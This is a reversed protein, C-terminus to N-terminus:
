QLGRKQLLPTESPDQGRFKLYQGMPDAFGGESLIYKRFKAALEPNYIDGSEKFAQFADSDLVAAWLYVYYGASYGGDFVHSFYTSRYRPLIEPILGYKDLISKEFANVDVEQPKSQSYYEMDLLCAAINEVTAFGQNFHRSNQLKAILADPMPEGTKYHKAYVKLVEPEGAWNEMIQSPLEVMDNPVSGAIRNYAGRTFFGHLAHGFEHFMTEADDWSLLSPNEGVPKPLNCVVSVLPLTEQGNEISYNRFGTCWAGNSKSPRTYYDLYFIGLSSGDADKMEYTEVDPHYVPIDTRKELTVGYLKNAVHFMGDRVNAMSLYPQIESEELDYKAKRQKEAYYWWDASNLKYGPTVKDAIKQMDALEQKAVNLAPTWVRGLFDFIQQPTKAMNEDVIYEAFTNYGLLQARQMRLNVLQNIVAKNDNENDNNGRMYYGAYLKARLDPRESYQLFPIWSPKNLTFVWKGEMGANKADAAAAAIVNEPLGALDKEDELVMKFNNTEKLLNDGYKLTLTSLEANIKKLKEKDENSLNAGERVLDNYYKELTRMQLSDLGAQDKKDYLAKIREFLKPNMSIEDSHASLMPMMEEAIAQMEDDTDASYINSFISSVRSLLKGSRDYTAITNEFTAEEPNNIIADIEAKHQQMAEIFAPKYDSKKILDFPPTQLPTTFDALLPNNTQKPTEKCSSLLATASLLLIITKRM